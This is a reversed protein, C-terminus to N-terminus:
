MNRKAYANKFGRPIKALFFWLSTTKAVTNETYSTETITFLDRFNPPHLFWLIYEPQM